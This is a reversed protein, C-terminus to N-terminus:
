DEKYAGIFTRVTCPGTTTVDLFQTTFKDFNFTIDGAGIKSTQIIDIPRFGLGHPIRENTVAHDFTLEKLTFDGFLLPFKELFKVLRQLSEKTYIDEIDKYIFDPLIETRAM